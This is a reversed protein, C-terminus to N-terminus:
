LHLKKNKDYYSKYKVYSQIINKKTKDYLVKTRRLLKEAFDITPAINPKFRLGFKQDLFKYPVGGQLKSISPETRLRYQFPIDHQLEPNCHTFVQAM